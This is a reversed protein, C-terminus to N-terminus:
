QKIGRQITKSTFHLYPTSDVRTIFYETGEPLVNLGVTCADWTKFVQSENTKPVVLSYYCLM